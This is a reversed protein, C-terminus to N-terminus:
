GPFQSTYNMHHGLKGRSIAWENLLESGSAISLCATQVPVGATDAAHQRPKM